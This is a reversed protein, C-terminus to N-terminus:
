EHWLVIAHSQYSDLGFIWTLRPEESGAGIITCLTELFACYYLLIFLTRFYLCFYRQQWRHDLLELALAVVLAHRQHALSGLGLFSWCSCSCIKTPWSQLSWSRTKLVLSRHDLNGFCVRFFLQCTALQLILLHWPLWSCYLCWSYLQSTALAFDALTDLWDFFQTLWLSLHHSCLCM